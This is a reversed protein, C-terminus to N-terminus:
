YSHFEVYDVTSFYKTPDKTNKNQRWFDMIETILNLIKIKEVDSSWSKTDLELKLQEWAETKPWFYYSTLPYSNEFETSDIAFGLINRLWLVRLKLQM